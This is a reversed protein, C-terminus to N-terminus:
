DTDVLRLVDIIDISIVGRLIFKSGKDKEIKKVKQFLDGKTLYESVRGTIKLCVDYNDDYSSLFVKPNEKLNNSSVIMQMDCLIIKDSEVISPEVMIARPRGDISATAFIMSKNEIIFDIQDQSLKM